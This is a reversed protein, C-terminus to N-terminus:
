ENPKYAKFTGNKYFIVIKDVEEDDVANQHNLHNINEKVPKSELSSNPTVDTDEEITKATSELLTPKITEKKILPRSFLSNEQKIATKKPEGTGLILWEANYQKFNSLIKQLYDLSPKSRGSLVHSISSRQVGIRDAFHTASLKEIAMMKAIRDKIEM